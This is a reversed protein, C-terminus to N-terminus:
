VTKVPVTVLLTNLFIIDAQNKYYDVHLAFYLSNMMHHVVLVLTLTWIRNRKLWNIESNGFYMNLYRSGLKEKVYNNLLECDHECIMIIICDTCPCKKILFRKNRIKRTKNAKFLIPCDNKSSSCQKCSQPLEM